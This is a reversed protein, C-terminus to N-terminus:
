PGAIGRLRAVRRRAPRAGSSCAAAIAMASARTDAFCEAHVRPWSHPSSASTMGGLTAASGGASAMASTTSIASRAM